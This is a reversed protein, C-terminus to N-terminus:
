NMLSLYYDTYIDVSFNKIVHERISNAKDVMKTNNLIIYSIIEVIQQVNEQVLFGLEPSVIKRTEGVDTVIPICGAAMAELLAQSPYNNEKQLSLFILTDMLENEIKETSFIRVYSDLENRRIYDRMEGELTGYGILCFEVIIGQLKLMFAIELALLPNKIIEFRGSFVVKNKKPFGMRFKNCDVFSNPAINVKNQSLNLGKRIMREPIMESLFDYKDSISIVTKLGQNKIYYFPFGNEVMYDVYSFIIKFGYLKTFIAIIGSAQLTNIHTLKNTRAWNLSLMNLQITEKLLSIIHRIPKPIRKRIGKLPNKVSSGKVIDSGIEPHKFNSLSKTEILSVKVNANFGGIKEWYRSVETNVLVCVMMKRSIASILNYYRREAGGVKGLNYLIIGLKM